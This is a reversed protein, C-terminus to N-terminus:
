HVVKEQDEDGRCLAGELARRLQCIQCNCDDSLGSGEKDRVLAVTGVALDKINVAWNHSAGWDEDPIETEVRLTEFLAAQETQMGATLAESRTRYEEVLAAQRMEHTENLRKLKWAAEIAKTTSATYPASKPKM